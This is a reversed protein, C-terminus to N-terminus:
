TYPTIDNLTLSWPFFNAQVRILTEWLTIPLLATVLWFCIHSRWPLAGFVNRTLLRRMQLYITSRAHTASSRVNEARKHKQESLSNACLREWKITRNGWMFFSVDTQILLFREAGKGSRPSPCVETVEAVEQVDRTVTFGFGLCLNHWLVSRIIIFFQKFGLADKGM